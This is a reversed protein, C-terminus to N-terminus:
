CNKGLMLCSFLAYVIQKAQNFNLQKGSNLIEFNKASKVHEYFRSPLCKEWLMKVMEQHEPDAYMTTLFFPKLNM